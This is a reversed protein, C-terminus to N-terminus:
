LTNATPFPNIGQWMKRHGGDVGIRMGCTTTVKHFKCYPFRDNLFNHILNYLRWFIGPVLVCKLVNFSLTLKMPWILLSFIKKFLTNSVQLVYIIIDPM